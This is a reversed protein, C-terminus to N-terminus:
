RSRCRSRTARSSRWQEVDTTRTTVEAAPPLRIGTFLANSVRSLVLTPERSVDFGPSSYEIAVVGIVSRRQDVRHPPRATMHEPVLKPPMTAAQVESYTMGFTMTSRRTNHQVDGPPSEGDYGSCSSAAISGSSANAVRIRRVSRRQSGSASAGIGRVRHTSRGSPRPMWPPARAGVLEDTQATLESGPRAVIHHGVQRRDRLRREHAGAAVVADSWHLVRFQERFPDRIRCQLHEFSSVEEHDLVATGERGDDVEESPADHDPQPLDRSRERDRDPPPRAARSM